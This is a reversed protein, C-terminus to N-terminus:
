HDQVSLLSKMVGAQGQTLTTQNGAQYFMVNGEDECGDGIGVFGDGNADALKTCRPTDALGDDIAKTPGQPSPDFTTTHLLGLFHGVEHALVLGIQQTTRPQLTNGFKVFAGVGLATDPGNGALQGPRPSLGATGDTTFHHIIFVDIGNARTKSPDGAPFGFSGWKDLDTLNVSQFGQQNLSEGAAAIATDDPGILTPQTAKVQDASYYFGEYSIAIGTSNFLQRVHAMVADTFAAQNQTTRLDGHAGYGAFKGAVFVNLHVRDNAFQGIGQVTVKTINVSDLPSRPRCIVVVHENKQEHLYLFGGPTDVSKSRRHEGSQSWVDFTLQDGSKTSEASILYNQGKVAPFTFTKGSGLDGPPVATSQGSLDARTSGDIAPALLGGAGGGGGGCAVFTAGSSLVALALAISRLLGNRRM